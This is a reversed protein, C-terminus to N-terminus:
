QISSTFNRLENAVATVYNDGDQAGLTMNIANLQALRILIVYGEDSTATKSLLANMHRTFANRNQVGTLSDEFAQIRFQEAKQTLEKFM